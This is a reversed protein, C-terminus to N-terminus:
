YVISQVSHMMVMMMTVTLVVLAITRVVGVDMMATTMVYVIMTMTMTVVRVCRVVSVIHFYTTGDNAM